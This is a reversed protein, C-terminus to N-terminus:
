LREHPSLMKNKVSPRVQLRNSRQIDYADPLQDHLM